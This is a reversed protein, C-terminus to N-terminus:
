REAGAPRWVDGPFSPVDRIEETTLVLERFAAVDRYRAQQPMHAASWAVQVTELVGSRGLREVRRLRVDSPAADARFEFIEGVATEYRVFLERETATASMLRADTPPRVVGLAGWLLAPSPLTVQTTAQTPIRFTDGVLAAALYTEGRPGFLDLRLREPAEYRVVGRGRLRSGAENLEWSFTAQRPSDPVSARRLEAATAQPDAVPAGAPPPLGGGCAAGLSLLGAVALVPWGPLRQLIMCNITSDLTTRERELM